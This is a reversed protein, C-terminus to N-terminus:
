GVVTTAVIQPLLPTGPRAITTTDASGSRHRLSAPTFDTLSWVSIAQGSM